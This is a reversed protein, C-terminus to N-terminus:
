TGRAASPCGGRVIGIGHGFGPVSNPLVWGPTAGVRTVSNVEAGRSILLRVIDPHDERVALMLSCQSVSDKFNVTAGRDLLIKVAEVNGSRIAAWSVPESNPDVTNADVGNDLLLRIM